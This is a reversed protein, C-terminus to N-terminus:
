IDIKTNEVYRNSNNNGQNLKGADTINAKQCTRIRNRCSLFTIINNMKAM